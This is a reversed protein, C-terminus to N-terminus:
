FYLTNKGFNLINKEFNFYKKKLVENIHSEGARVPRGDRRVLDDQAGDGLVESVDQLHTM